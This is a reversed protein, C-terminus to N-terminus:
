YVQEIDTHTKLLHQTVPLQTETPELGHVNDRWLARQPNQSVYKECLIVADEVSSLVPNAKCLSVM